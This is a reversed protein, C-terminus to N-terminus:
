WISAREEPKRFMEDSPKIGFANFFPQMNKLTGKVRYEAPSHPDTLIQNRIYETRSQNKWVQAFGIFFRQEPTYGDIKNNANPNKALYM